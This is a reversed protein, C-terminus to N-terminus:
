KTDSPADGSMPPVPPTVTRKRDPRPPASKAKGSRGASAASARGNTGTRGTYRAVLASEIRAALRADYQHATYADDDYSEVNDRVWARVRKADITRELGAKHLRATVSRAVQRATFVQAM